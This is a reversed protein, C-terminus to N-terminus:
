WQLLTDYETLEENVSRLRRALKRLKSRDEAEKASSQREELRKFVSCLDLADDTCVKDCDDLQVQTPQHSTNAASTNDSSSEALIQLRLWRQLAYVLCGDLCSACLASGLSCFSAHGECRDALSSWQKSFAILKRWEDPSKTAFLDILKDAVGEQGQKRTLVPESATAASTSAQSHSSAREEAQQAAATAKVRTQAPVYTRRSTKFGATPLRFCLYTRAVLSSSM